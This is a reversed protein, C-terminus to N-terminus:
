CPLELRSRDDTPYRHVSRRQFPNRIRFRRSNGRSNGDLGSDDVAPEDQIPEDQVQEDQLPEDPAQEEQTQEDQALEDPAQENEPQNDQEPALCTSDNSYDDSSDVDSDCAAAPMAVASLLLAAFGLKRLM